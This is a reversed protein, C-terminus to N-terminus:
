GQSPRSIPALQALGAQFDNIAKQLQPTHGRELYDLILGQVTAIILVILSQEDALIRRGRAKAAQIQTAILERLRDTIYATAPKLNPNTIAEATLGFYAVLLARDTTLASWFQQFGTAIIEAPEELGQVAQTLQSILRDGLHRIAHEILQERTGYYYSIMRKQTGAEQAIRALSTAHYGDRGLCRLTADLIAQAHRAGKATPPAIPRM